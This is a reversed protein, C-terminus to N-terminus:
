DNAESQILPVRNKRIHSFNQLRELEPGARIARKETTLTMLRTLIQRPSMSMFLM